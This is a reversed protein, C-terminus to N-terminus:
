NTLDKVNMCASLNNMKRILINLVCLLCIFVPLIYYCLHQLKQSFDSSLIVDHSKNFHLVRNWDIVPTM